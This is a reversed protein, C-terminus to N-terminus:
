DLFKLYDSVPLHGFIPNKERPFVESSFFIVLSWFFDFSSFIFAMKCISGGFDLPSSFDNMPAICFISLCGVFNESFFSRIPSISLFSDSRFQFSLSLSFIAFTFFFSLLFVMELVNQELSLCYLILRRLNFQVQFVMLAFVFRICLGVLLM